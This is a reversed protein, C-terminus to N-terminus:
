LARVIGIIRYVRMLCQERGILTSTSDWNNLNLYQCHYNFYCYLVKYEAALEPDLVGAMPRGDGMTNYCKARVSYFFLISCTAIIIVFNCYFISVM